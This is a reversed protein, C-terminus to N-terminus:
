YDERLAYAVAEDMSMRQGEDYADSFAAEGMKALGAAIIKDVDAQELRPHPHDIENRTTEAWGIPRTGAEHRRM